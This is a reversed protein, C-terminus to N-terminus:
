PRRLARAGIVLLLVGAVTLVVGPVTYYLIFDWIMHQIQPWQAWLSVLRSAGRAAMLVGFTVIAPTLLGKGDDAGTKFGIRMLLLGVIATIVASILFAIYLALYRDTEFADRENLAHASYISEVLGWVLFMVGVVMLAFRLARADLSPGKSTREAMNSGEM